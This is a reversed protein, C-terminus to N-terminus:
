DRNAPDANEIAQRANCMQEAVQEFTRAGRPTLLSAIVLAAMGAIFSPIVPTALLANRSGAAAPVFMLALSVAPTTILAALAGQWTARKWFFGGLIIVALGSMTVSLFKVVFGVIDSTFLGISTAVVFAAALALRATLVPRRPFRGTLLPFIHRAFFTSVGIANSNAASFVGCVIAVVMVAALWPPLINMVLWPLAQDAKTAPLDPNLKFAYMGIVGISVSFVAVIVGATVMATRAGRTSRATFMALRRGPDAIDSLVLVLMLGFVKWAGYSDVGLLSLREPPIAQTLGGLGGSNALATCVLLSFGALVMIMQLFNIYVVAKVGGPISYGATILGALLLCAQRPLGTAAGLLAAGGLIQVTLWCVQSLFLSINSFEVVARNNGYYCAIEESLTMFQHRRMGAFLLGTILTGLGIGLPYANGAWGHQYALGTAGIIVGTGICMGMAAGVLVIAPRGRGAVLYDAPNKVRLTFYLSVGLMLVAYIALGTIIATHTTM